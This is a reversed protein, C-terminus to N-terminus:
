KCKVSYGFYKERFNKSPISRYETITVSVVSLKNKYNGQQHPGKATTVGDPCCGFQFTHCLCGQYDAGPAPTFNDPCCGYETYQCGCGENSYGRATTKNDPCCGYPSQECGCGEM